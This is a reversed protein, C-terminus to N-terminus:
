RCTKARRSGTGGAFQQALRESRVDLGVRTALHLPHRQPVALASEADIGGVQNSWCSGCSPDRSPWLNSDATRALMPEPPPRSCWRFTSGAGVNFTTTTLPADMGRAYSIGPRIWMTKGLKFHARPGVAFTVTDMNADVIPVSVGM